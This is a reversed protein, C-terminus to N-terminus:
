KKVNFISGKFMLTLFNSIQLVKIQFCMIKVHETVTIGLLVWILVNMHANPLSKLYQHYYPSFKSSTQIPM